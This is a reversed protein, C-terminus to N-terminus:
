IDLLFLVSLKKLCITWRGYDLEWSPEKIPGKRIYNGSIEFNAKGGTYLSSIYLRIVIKGMRRYM